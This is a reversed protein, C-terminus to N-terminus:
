KRYSSKQERPTPIEYFPLSRPLSLENSSTSPRYPKVKSKIAEVIPDPPPRHFPKAAPTDM